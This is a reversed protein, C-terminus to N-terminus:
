MEIQLLAKLSHIFLSKQKEQGEMSNLLPRFVSLIIKTTLKYDGMFLESKPFKKVINEFRELFIHHNTMLDKYEGMDPHQVLEWIKRHQVWLRYLFDALDDIELDTETEIQKFETELKIFFPELISKLLMEKNTFHNYITGRSIGVKDAVEELSVTKIGKQRFLEESARIIMVKREQKKFERLQAAM